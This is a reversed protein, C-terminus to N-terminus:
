ARVLEPPELWALGRSRLWARAGDIGEQEATVLLEGSVSAVRVWTEPPMLLLDDGGIDKAAIEEDTPEDEVLGLLKRFGQSWSMQRRGHSARVWETWLDLDDADGKAQIDAAIQFPTRGGRRGKKAHGHTAEVCMSKVLYRGLGEATEDTSCRIDLGGSDRLATYGHRNLAHEWAPWIAEAFRRVCEPTQEGEFVLLAHVHPHWGHQGNTVEIVRVWALLGWREAAGVHRVPRNARLKDLRAACRRTYTDERERARRAPELALRDEWTVLRAAHEAETEGAWARGSTVASWGAGVADWTQALPHGASHQVTLTLLAITHGQQTAWWLARDLDEARCAAIKAACVPCAWVSGCTALGSFGASRAGAEGMIRLGVQGGPMVAERGCYSLRKGQPVDEVDLLDWLHARLAYRDKKAEWRKVEEAFVASSEDRSGSSSNAGYWPAGPAARGTGGGSAPLGGARGRQRANPSAGAAATARNQAVGTRTTRPERPMRLSSTGRTRTSSATTVTPSAGPVSRTEGRPAPRRVPMPTRVSSDAAM